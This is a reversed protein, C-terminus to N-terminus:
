KSDELAQALRQAANRDLSGLVGLLMEAQRRDGAKVAAMGAQEYHTAAEVRNGGMYYINGLEGHLKEDDPYQALLDTYSAIATESDGRWYARRAENLRSEYSGEGTAAAAAPEPAPAPAATPTQLGGSPPPSAPAAPATPTQLGNNAPAQVPAVPAVPAQLGASVPAVPTVPTVPAVPAQADPVGNEGPPPAFVPQAPAAAQPAPAQPAPAPEPAAAVAPEDAGGGGMIEAVRDRNFFAVVALAVVLYTVLLRLIPSLM